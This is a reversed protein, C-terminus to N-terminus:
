TEEEIPQQDVPVVVEFEAGEGPDSRLEIRGGHAEAIARVIALGLGAGEYSGRARRGRALREFIAEREDPEIGPGSDRVWLRAEHANVSTGIAIADDEDTHRAANDALNMVAQTLRQRDAAIRGRGAEELTWKRPALSQAKTLLERSLEGMDVIEYELFDPREARALLMLDAVFRSMRDLEDTVVAITEAREAPDEQGAALLELHGRIVTIPTRLEHGADRIFERQSTFADDLRDLMENFTRSLEAIEDNGQVDIRQTLDTATISRAADRLGRLPALVRGAALFAIVSALLLVGGSVAAVIRVVEAVEDREQQTFIAVVFAGLSRGNVRVPVAVYEAPGAPTDIEGREESELRRWRSVYPEEIVYEAPESRQYRAQGRRPVTILEEGEGPVNRSLFVSFIRGVDDGFPRGTAPDTGDLALTRFERVEQALDDQIRDDLRVLLVQRAVFVSVLSAAALLIVYSALIRVRVSRLERFPGPSRQRHPSATM